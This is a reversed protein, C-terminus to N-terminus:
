LCKAIKKQDCQNWKSYGIREYRAKAKSNTGRLNYTSPISNAEGETQIYRTTVYRIRM